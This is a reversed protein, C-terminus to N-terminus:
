RFDPRLRSRVGVGVSVHRSAVGTFDLSLATLRTAWFDLLNKQFIDQLEFSVDEYGEGRSRTWLAIPHGRTAHRFRGSKHGSILDCSTYNDIRKRLTAM